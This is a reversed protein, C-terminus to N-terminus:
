LEQITSTAKLRPIQGASLTIPTVLPGSYDIMGGGRSVSWHTIPPGPSGTCLDFDLDVAPSVSNGAVTWGATNRPLTKRSYGGYATENTLQTGSSGPDATHLAIVHNTFPSSAANDAISPMAAGLFYLRLWQNRLTDGKAM